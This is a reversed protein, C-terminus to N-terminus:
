GRRPGAAAPWGGGAAPATVFSRSCCVAIAVMGAFVLQGFIGHVVALTISRETVRTGGLAGQIIVAALVALFLGAFIWRTM